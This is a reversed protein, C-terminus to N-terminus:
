SFRSRVCEIDIGAECSIKSDRKDGTGPSDLVYANSILEPKVRYRRIEKTVGRYARKVMCHEREADVCLAQVLSTKGDGIEGVIVINFDLEARMKGHKDKVLNIM